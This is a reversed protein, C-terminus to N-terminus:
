RVGGGALLACAHGLGATLQTVDEGALLDDKTTGRGFCKVGKPEKEAVCMFDQGLAIAKAPGVHVKVPAEHTETTGDGLQGYSNEGWCFVEGGGLLACAHGGGAGIATAGAIGKVPEPKAGAHPADVAGGDRCLVTGDDKLACQYRDGLAVDRVAGGFLQTAQPMALALNTGWCATGGSKVRACGDKPGLWVRDMEPTKHRKCGGVAGIALALALALAARTV